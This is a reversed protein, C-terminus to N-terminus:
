LRPRASVSGWWDEPATGPSYSAAVFGAHAAEMATPMRARRGAWVAERAAPNFEPDEQPFTLCTMDTLKATSAHPVQPQNNSRVTPFRAGAAALHADLEARLEAAQAHSRRTLRRHPRPGSVRLVRM